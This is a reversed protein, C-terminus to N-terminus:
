QGPPTSVLEEGSSSSSPNVNGKLGKELPRVPSDVTYDVSSRKVRNEQGEANIYPEPKEQTLQEDFRTGASLQILERNRGQCAYTLAWDGLAGTNYDGNYVAVPFGDRYAIIVPWGKLGVQHFPNSTNSSVSAFAEAVRRHEAVNCAGYVPGVAEEAVAAWIKMLEQSEQLQNYFLIVTCRKDKLGIYIPASLDFDDPDLMSITNTAFTVFSRTQFEM